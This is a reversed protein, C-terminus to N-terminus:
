TLGEKNFRSMDRHNRPASAIQLKAMRAYVKIQSSGIKILSVGVLAAREAHKRQPARGRKTIIAV